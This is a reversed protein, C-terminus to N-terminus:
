TSAASRLYNSLASTIAACLKNQYGSDCLRMAEENNSLFGCEILVATCNIKDLLYISSAKKIDRLNDQAVHKRLSNQLETALEKSGATNAYFVQAGSYKSVSYYNQHISVLVANATTNVFRVRNKLDSVKKQAITEGETDISAETTRTMITQIGLLHLLDRLKHGIQLNITSELIGTATSAGGDIGGHGPDIIVTYRNNLLEGAGYVSATHQVALSLVLIICLGFAIVKLENLRHVNQRM